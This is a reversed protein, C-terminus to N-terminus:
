QQQASKKELVRSLDIEAVRNPPTIEVKLSGFGSLKTHTLFALYGGGGAANLDIGAMLPTCYTKFTYGGAGSRTDTNRTASNMYINGFQAFRNMSEFGAMGLGFNM